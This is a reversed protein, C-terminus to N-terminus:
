GGPFMELRTILGNEITLEARLAQENAIEGTEAWRQVLTGRITVGSPTEVFEPNELREDLHAPSERQSRGALWSERGRISRAGFVIEIEDSMLAAAAADDGRDLADAYVRALATGTMRSLM